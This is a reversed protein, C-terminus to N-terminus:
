RGLERACPGCLYVIIQKGDPGVDTYMKVQKIQSPSKITKSGKPGCQYCLGSSM